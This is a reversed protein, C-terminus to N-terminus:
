LSSVAVDEYPALRREAEEVDDVLAFVAAAGPRLGRGFEKMREDPIGRDWAAWGGGAAVGAVAGLIPGGLVLGVVFGITGGGVVGDGVAPLLAQRLAVSGDEARSVVAADEVGGGELARALAADALAADAYAAAVLSGAM